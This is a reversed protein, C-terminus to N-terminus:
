IEGQLILAKHFLTTMLIVVIIVCFSNAQYKILKEGSSRYSIFLPLLHSNLNKIKHNLPNFVHRVTYNHFFTQKALLIVRRAPEGLTEGYLCKPEGLQTLESLVLCGSRAGASNARAFPDIIKETSEAPPHGEKEPCSKKM